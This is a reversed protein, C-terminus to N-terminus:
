PDAEPKLKKWVFSISLKVFVIQFCNINEVDTCRKRM